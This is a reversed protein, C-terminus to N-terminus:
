AEGMVQFNVKSKLIRANQKARSKEQAKRLGELKTLIGASEKVQGNLAADIVAAALVKDFDDGALISSGKVGNVMVMCECALVEGLYFLSRQISERVKVMVLTKQPQKMIQVPYAERVPAAIKVVEEKTARALITTIEKKTM